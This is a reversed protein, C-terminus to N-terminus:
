ECDNMVRSLIEKRTGDFVDVARNVVHELNIDEEQICTADQLLQKRLNQLFSAKSENLQAALSRMRESPVRRERAAKMAESVLRRCAQDAQHVVSTACKLRDAEKQETDDEAPSLPNSLASSILEMVKQVDCKSLSNTTNLSISNTEWSNKQPNPPELRKVMELIVDSPIPRPRSRNRSICTELDCQLYVQCFGLSYKRALQRAEYRMSPYYFNDDLLLLLPAQDSKLGEPRLLARVCREWAAADIRSSSPPEAMGRPNQLFQEVCQLVAQRHLRWETHMETDKEVRTQFAHEPILDDYPVVTARWGQQQAATGVIIRSLTSKGAAPLGCLVCLCAPPRGVSGPEEAAM